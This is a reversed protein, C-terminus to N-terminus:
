RKTAKLTMLGWLWDIKYSDVFDVRFNQSRVLERLEEAGYVKTHAPDTLRLYYDCLWCAWFEDDWDTIYLEGGEVLVRNIEQLFSKPRLFFHFANNSVVTTFSNSRFPLEASQGAVYDISASPNNERAQLLMNSSLDVGTAHGSFGSSRLLNLFYGTGCGVDLVRSDSSLNMRQLTELSTSKIYYSWEREYSSAAKDYEQRVITQKEENRSM